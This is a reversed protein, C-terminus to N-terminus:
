VEVPRINKRLSESAKFKVNPRFEVLKGRAGPLWTQAKRKPYVTRLSGINRLKVEGGAALEDAIADLMGEVVTGALELTVKHGNRNLTDHAARVLDVVALQPVYGAADLRASLLINGVMHDLRTLEDLGLAVYGAREAAPLDLTQFSQLLARLGAIPSKLEHTV